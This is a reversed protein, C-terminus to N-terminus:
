LPLPLMDSCLGTVTEGWQHAIVKEYKHQLLQLIQLVTGVYFTIASKKRKVLQYEDSTEGCAAM